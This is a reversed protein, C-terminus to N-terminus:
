TLLRYIFGIIIAWLMISLPRTKSDRFLILNILLKM